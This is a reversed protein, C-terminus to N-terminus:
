RSIEGAVIALYDWGARDSDSLDGFAAIWRAHVVPNGLEFEKCVAVYRAGLKRAEPANLRTGVERLRAAEIVLPGQARASKSVVRADHMFKDLRGAEAADDPVVNRSLLKSGLRFWARTVEPNWAFQELQRERQNGQKWIAHMREVLEQVAESEPAAGRKMLAHIGAAVERYAAFNEQGALKEGPDRNAWYTIWEREQEPTIHQNILERTISQLNNVETSRMLECLEDISLNIRSRLRAAASRILNIARDAAFKRATWSQLQMDLVQALDPPSASFAKRIQALSLGFGKLAVITNLRVLEQPGYLRWGKASRAPELLGGREYVRLARVTLGTRRACEAATLRAAGPKVVPKASKPM